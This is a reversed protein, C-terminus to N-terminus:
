DCHLERSEGREDSRRSSSHKVRVVTRSSGTGNGDMGGMARSDSGSDLKVLQGEIRRRRSRHGRGGRVLSVSVEVDRGRHRGRRRHQLTVIEVGRIDVLVHVAVLMRVAVTARAQITNADRDRGSRLAINRLVDVTVAVDVAISAGTEVIDTNRFGVGLFAVITVPAFDTTGTGEVFVATGTVGTESADTDVLRRRLRRDLLAVIRVPAFDTTGAGEVLVTTGTVGTESTDTNILRRRLNRSEPATALVRIASLSGTHVAM